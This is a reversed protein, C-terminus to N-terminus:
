AAEEWATELAEGFREEITDRHEEIAPRLYPHDIEQPEAYEVNSGIETRVIHEGIREIEHGIDARLRGTDVNVLRKATAEVRFGLEESAEELHEPLIQQFTQFRRELDEPEDGDWELSAEM